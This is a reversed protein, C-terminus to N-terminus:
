PEVALAIAPEVVPEARERLWRLVRVQALAVALVFALVGLLAVVVGILASRWGRTLGVALVITLAEVMEVTSALFAALVLFVASMEMKRAPDSVAGVARDYCAGAREGAPPTLGSSM